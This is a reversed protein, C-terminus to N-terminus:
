FRVTTMIYAFDHTEPGRAREAFRGPLFFSYGALLNLHKHVPIRATFDVEQGLDRGSQGSPDFGLVSGGANKWPGRKAALLFRHYDSELTLRAHLKVGAHVRFDHLNRLGVLDAYGYHSHNTPFLNEFEHSRGDAPDDDGTAFDYEFGLEPQWRGGWAYGATAILAVGRHSDPGRKGFQWANEVEYRFSTAPTHARRFGVTFIDTDLFGGGLEGMRKLGDHFYIGYLETRGPKDQPARMFYAGYLDRSGPRHPAGGRRVDVLRAAFFDRTWSGRHYRLRAGDFSRGVNDWGFAGVLRERGYVLEQRGARVEWQTSGAPKWDLYAQYLNTGWSHVIKDQEAGFLWVDQGELFFSLQPHARVRLKLRIRQGTSFDFDDTPRFDANDRFESRWRLEVSVEVAEPKAPPPEQATRNSPSDAPPEHGPLPCPVVLM